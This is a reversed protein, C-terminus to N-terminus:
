NLADVEMRYNELVFVNKLHSNCVHKKFLMGNEFCCYVPDFSLMFIVCDYCHLVSFYKRTIYSIFRIFQIFYSESYWKTAHRFNVNFVLVLHHLHSWLVCWFFFFCVFFWFLFLSGGFWHEFCYLHSEVSFEIYIYWKWLVVIDLGDVTFDTWWFHNANKLMPGPHLFM